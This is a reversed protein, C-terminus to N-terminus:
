CFHVQLGVIRHLARVLQAVSDLNVRANVILEQVTYIFHTITLYIDLSQADALVSYACHVTLLHAGGGDLSIKGAM